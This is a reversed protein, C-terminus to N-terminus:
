VIIKEVTDKFFALLEDATTITDRHFLEIDPIGADKLRGALNVARITKDECKNAPIFDKARQPLALYGVFIALGGRVASLLETTDVSEGEILELLYSGTSVRIKHSSVIEASYTADRGQRDKIIDIGLDAEPSEWVPHVAIRHSLYYPDDAATRVGIDLSGLEDRVVSLLPHLAMVEQALQWHVGLPSIESSTM